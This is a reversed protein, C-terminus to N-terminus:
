RSGLTMSDAQEAALPYYYVACHPLAERLQRAGSESIHTWRIYLEELNKLKALHPVASDSVSTSTLYL